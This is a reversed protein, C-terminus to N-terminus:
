ETLFPRSPVTGPIRALERKGRKNSGTHGLVKGTACEGKKGGGTGVARAGTRVSFWLDV